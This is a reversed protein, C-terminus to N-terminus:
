RENTVKKTRCGLGEVCLRTFDDKLGAFTIEDCVLRPSVFISMTPLDSRRVVERVRRRFRNRAVANGFRRPVALGLQVTRPLDLDAASSDVLFVVTVYHGRWRTGQKFVGDFEARTRLSELEVM